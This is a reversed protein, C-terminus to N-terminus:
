ALDSGHGKLYELSEAKVLEFGAELDRCSLEM